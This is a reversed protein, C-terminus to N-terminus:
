DERGTSADVTVDFVRGDDSLLRIRYVRRSDDTKEEARVARAGYKQEARAVAQDLTLAESRVVHSWSEPARARGSDAMAGTSLVTLTLTLTLFSSLVLSRMACNYLIYRHVPGSRM